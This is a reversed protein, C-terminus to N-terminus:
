LSNALVSLISAIKVEVHTSHLEHECRWLAADGDRHPSPSTVLIVTRRHVLWRPLLSILKHILMRKVLTGDELHRGSLERGDGVVQLNWHVLSVPNEQWFSRDRYRTRNVAVVTRSGNKLAISNLVV